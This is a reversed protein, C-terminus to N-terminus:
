MIDLTQVGVPFKKEKVQRSIYQSRVELWDDDHPQKNPQSTWRFYMFHVVADAWKM